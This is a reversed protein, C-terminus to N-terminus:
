GMGGLPPGTTSSRSVAPSAATSPSTATGPRALDVIRHRGHVGRASDRDVVFAVDQSQPGAATTLAAL